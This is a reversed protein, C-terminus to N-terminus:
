SKQFFWLQKKCLNVDYIEVEFGCKMRKIGQNTFYVWLKILVFAVIIFSLQFNSRKPYKVKVFM